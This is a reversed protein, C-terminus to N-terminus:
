SPFRRTCLPRSDFGGRYADQATPNIGAKRYCIHIPYRSQYKEHIFEASYKSQNRGTEWPPFFENVIFVYNNIIVSM